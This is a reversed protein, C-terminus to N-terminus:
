KRTPIYCCRVVQDNGNFKLHNRRHSFKGLKKFQIWTYLIEVSNNIYQYTLLCTSHVSQFVEVSPWSIAIQRPETERVWLAHHVLVSSMRRKTVSRDYKYSHGNLLWLPAHFIIKNQRIITVRYHTTINNIKVPLV